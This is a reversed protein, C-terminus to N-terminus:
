VKCSPSEISSSPLVSLLRSGLCCLNWQRVPKLRAVLTLPALGMSIQSRILSTPLARMRFPKHTHTHTYDPTPPADPSPSEDDHGKEVPPPPLTRPRLSMLRMSGLRTSDLCRAHTLIRSQTRARNHAQKHEHSRCRTRPYPLSMEAQRHSTRIGMRCTPHQPHQDPQRANSLQPTRNSTSPDPGHQNRIDLVHKPVRASLADTPPSKCIQAPRIIACCLQTSACHIGVPHHALVSESPPTLLAACALVWSPPTTLM